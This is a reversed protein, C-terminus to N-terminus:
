ANFKKQINKCFILIRHKFVLFNVRCLAGYYRRLVVLRFLLM